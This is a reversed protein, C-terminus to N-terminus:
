RKRATPKSEGEPEGEPEPEPIETILGGEPEPIETILGVEALHRISAEEAQEPVRDGRGLYVSMGAVRVVAAAGSVVWSM